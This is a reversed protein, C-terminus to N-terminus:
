GKGPPPQKTTISKEFVRHGEESNEFGFALLHLRKYKQM